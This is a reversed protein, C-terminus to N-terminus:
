RPWLDRSLEEKLRKTLQEGQQLDEV